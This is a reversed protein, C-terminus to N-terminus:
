GAGAALLEPPVQSDIVSGATALSYILVAAFVAATLTFVSLVLEYQTPSYDYLNEFTM